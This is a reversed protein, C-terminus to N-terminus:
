KTVVEKTVIRGKSNEHKELMLEKVEDVEHEGNTSGFEITVGDAQRLGKYWFYPVLEGEANPFGKERKSSIKIKTM